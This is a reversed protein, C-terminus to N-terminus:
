KTRYDKTSSEINSTIVELNVEVAKAQVGNDITVISAQSPASLQRVYDEGCDCSLRAYADKSNRFFKSMSKGCKCLYSILPM